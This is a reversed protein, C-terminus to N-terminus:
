KKKQNKKRKQCKAGTKKRTLAEELIVDLGTVGRRRPLAIGYAQLAVKRMSSLFRGKHSQVGYEIIAHAHAAEHIVAAIVLKDSELTKNLRIRPPRNEVAETYDAHDYKPLEEVIIKTTSPLPQIYKQCRRYVKKAVELIKKKTM